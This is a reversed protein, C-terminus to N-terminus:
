SASTGTMAISNIGRGHQVVMERVKGFWLDQSEWDFSEDKLHFTHPEEEAEWLQGSRSRSRKKM